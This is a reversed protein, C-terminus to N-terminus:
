SKYKALFKPNSVKLQDILTQRVHAHIREALEGEAEGSRIYAGLARNLTRIADRHPAGATIIGPFLTRLRALEQDMLDDSLTLERETISLLNAAILAKFRLGGDSITPIMENTLLERIAELLEAATPRNQM